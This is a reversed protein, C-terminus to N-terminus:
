NRILIALSACNKLEKEALIRLAREPFSPSHEFAKTFSQIVQIVHATAFQAKHCAAMGILLTQIIAYHALMVLCQDSISQAIGHVSNGRSSKQPGLPFLTRHVYNVLYHELMHQHDSMFPAYDQLHAAAYRRGIDDMSSETTWEMAQMFERYCALLRPTTFDSSIRGVILELVLELQAAPQPSHTDLAAGFLDRQVADRYAELVEPVQDPAALQQLQDCLSGLIVLRKWLPYARHQLLEIVFGRIERFHEYPKDGKGNSTTLISLNALRSDHSPGEEEDFQM